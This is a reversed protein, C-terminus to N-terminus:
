LLDDAAFMGIDKDEVEITYNRILKLAQEARDSAVVPLEDLAAEVNEEFSKEDDFMTGLVGHIIVNVWHSTYESIDEKSSPDALIRVALEDPIDRLNGDLYRILM